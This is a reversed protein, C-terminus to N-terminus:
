SQAHASQQEIVQRQPWSLTQLLVEPWHAKKLQSLSACRGLVAHMMEQGLLWSTSVEPWLADGDFGSAVLNHTRAMNLRNLTEELENFFPWDKIDEIM